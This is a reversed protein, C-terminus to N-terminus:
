VLWDQEEALCIVIFVYLGAGQSEGQEKEDKSTVEESLGRQSGQSENSKGESQEEM